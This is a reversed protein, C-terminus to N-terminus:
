DENDHDSNGSATAIQWHEALAASGLRCGGMPAATGFVGGWRM